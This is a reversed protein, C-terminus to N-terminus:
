RNYVSGRQRKKRKINIKIFESTSLDYKINLEFPNEFNLTIEKISNWMIKSGDITTKWNSQKDDVLPKFDLFEENPVEFVKYPNGTVKACSIVTVWQPPVYIVKGKHANEICAHM